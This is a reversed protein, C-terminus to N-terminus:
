ESGMHSSKVKWGNWLDPQYMEDRTWGSSSSIGHDQRLIGLTFWMVICSFVLAGLCVSVSLALM